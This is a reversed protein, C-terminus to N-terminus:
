AKGGVIDYVDTGIQVLACYPNTAGTSRLDNVTAGSGTITVTGKITCGFGSGLGAPVTAAQAASCVLTAGNDSAALARSTFAGPAVPQLSTSAKTLAAQSAVDLDAAPVGTSPKTYKAAATGQATSVRGDLDDFNGDLEAFTLASGKTTRKVITM